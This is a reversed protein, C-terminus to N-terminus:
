LSHRFGPERPLLGPGPWELCTRLSGASPDSLMNKGERLETYM